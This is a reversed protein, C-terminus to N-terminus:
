AGSVPSAEVATVTASAVSTAGIRTEAGPSVEGVASDRSITSPEVPPLARVIDGPGVPPLRRRRM